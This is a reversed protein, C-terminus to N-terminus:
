ESAKRTLSVNRGDNELASFTDASTLGLWPDSSPTLFLEAYVKENFQHLSEPASGSALWEHLTTHLLYEDRVTDLAISNRVGRLARLLPDEVRAKGVAVRSAEIATPMMARMLNMSTADLGASDLHLRAIGTWTADSTAAALMEREKKLADLGVDASIKTAQVQATDGKLIRIQDQKWETLNAAIRETHYQRLLAVRETDPQGISSKVAKAANELGEMFAKPSYLGPLADVIRGEPDLFYQISNGTITRELTRGDGFDVTLKPAPRVSEWHLVFDERLRRSIETNAYLVTRFFRSNACSFEENLKGLLRLSLIPKGSTRAAAKAKELDTYWFLQSVYADRQQAVADIIGSLRQMSADASRSKGNTARMQAIAASHQAFLADLGPQGQERLAAIAQESVKADEAVANNALGARYCGIGGGALVSTGTLTSICAALVTLRIGHINTVLSTKM